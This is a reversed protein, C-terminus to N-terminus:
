KDPIERVEYFFELRKWGHKVVEQLTAVLVATALDISEGLDVVFDGLETERLTHRDPFSFDGHVFRSRFNYMDRLKKKFDTQEGLLVQTKESLQQIIGEHGKVYLAEIGMMAWFLAPPLGVIDGDLLYSCACLARAVSEDGFGDMFGENRTAWAWVEAFPLKRFNPWGIKAAYERAMWFSDGSASDTKEKLVGDQIVVAPEFSFSAIDSINAVLALDYLRKVFYRRVNFAHYPQGELILHAMESDTPLSASTTVKLFKYRKIQDPSFWEQLEGAVDEARIADLLALEPTLVGYEYVPFELHGSSTLMEEAMSCPLFHLGALGLLSPSLPLYATLLTRNQEM